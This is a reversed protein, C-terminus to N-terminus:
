VHCKREAVIENSGLKIEELLGSSEYPIYRVTPWETERVPGQANKQKQGSM